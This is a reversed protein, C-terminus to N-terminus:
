SDTKGWSIWNVATSSNHQSTVKVMVLVMWHSNLYHHDQFATTLTWIQLIEDKKLMKWLQGKRSSLKSISDVPQCAGWLSDFEKVKWRWKQASATSYSVLRFFHTGEKKSDSSHKPRTNFLEKRESKVVPWLLDWWNSRESESWASKHVGKLYQCVWRKM